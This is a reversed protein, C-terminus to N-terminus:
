AVSRSPRTAVEVRRGGRWLIEVLADISLRNIKGTMLDRVRPQNVAFLKSAALHSLRRARVMRILELMLESRLRLIQARHPPFGLDLFVNGSSRKSGKLRMTVIM